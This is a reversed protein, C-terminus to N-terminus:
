IGLLDIALSLLLPLSLKKYNVFVLLELVFVDSVLDFLLLISFLHDFFGHLLLLALLGFLL